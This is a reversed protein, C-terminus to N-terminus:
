PIEKSLCTLWRQTQDSPPASLIALYPFTIQTAPLDKLKLNRVSQDTLWTSPVYGIASPSAAVAALVDSPSAALYASPSILSDTLIVQSFVTQIDEEISFTWLEIEDPPLDSCQPCVEAWSFVEGSFIKQITALNTEQIPNEPNVVFVLRDLGLEYAAQKLDIPSGWLLNIDQPQTVILQAPLQNFEIAVGPLGQSCENIAPNLFGLSPSVAVQWVVPTPIPPATPIVQCSTLALLAALIVLIKASM